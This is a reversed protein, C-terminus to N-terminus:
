ECVEKADQGCRRRRLMCLLPVFGVMVPIAFQQARYLMSISAAETRFIGFADLSRYVAIDFTGLQAPAAPFLGFVEIQAVVVVSSFFGLDVGLSNGVLMLSAVDCGRILITFFLARIFRKMELGVRAASFIRHWRGETRDEDSRRSLLYSVIWVCPVITSYGVLLAIPRNTASAFHLIILCIITYPVLALSSALKRVAVLSITNFTSVGHSRFLWVRLAEGTGEPSISVAAQCGIEYYLLRVFPVRALPALVISWCLARLILTVVGLLSAFLLPVPLAGSSLWLVQKVEIHSLSACLAALCGLALGWRVVWLFRRWQRTDLWSSFRM